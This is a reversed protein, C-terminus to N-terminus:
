YAFISWRTCTALRTVTIRKPRVMAVLATSSVIILLDDPKYCPGDRWISALLDNQFLVVELRSSRKTREGVAGPFGLGFLSSIFKHGRFCWAHRRSVTPRSVIPM